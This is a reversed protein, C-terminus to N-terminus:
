LCGQRHGIPLFVTFVTGSGLLSKVRIRGGHRQIASHVISLGLGTGAAKTTFFPDFINPVIEGAIGAGNDGIDIRVCSQNEGEMELAAMKATIDIKGKRDLAELSNILMNILAEELIKKDGYIVALKEIIRLDVVCEQKNAMPRIVVLIDSILQEVEISSFVLEQPKAFDLFRNITTEMRQIQQMAVSFDEEYEPSIEIESQVSELFLKISTLPTRIEHTVGAGLRGLAALKVSRAAAMQSKQLKMDTEQLESEKLDVKKELDNQRQQIKIAMNRFTTYLSGIEDTRTIGDMEYAAQDFDGCAIKNASTSLRRIPAVITRSISFALFSVSLISFAAMFFLYKKLIDASNFAEQRDQEVVLHWDTGAVKRFAGLVEIGRYDLYIKRNASAAFINKFSDSQAINEKLIKDPDKHALFNGDKDVLYCEGTEGLNVNLIVELILGTGVTACVTGKLFNDEVIPTALRFVSEKDEPQLTIGFMFVKNGAAHWKEGDKAMDNQQGCAVAGDSAVVAIERYVQYHNRVLSLYPNILDPDMSRLISSNAVVLLDASRESLWRELLRVKDDAVNQLKSDVMAVVIKEATKISFIGVGLMPILSLLLFLVMVKTQLTNKVIKELL